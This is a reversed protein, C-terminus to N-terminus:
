TEWCGRGDYKTKRMMRCRDKKVTRHKRVKKGCERNEESTWKLLFSNEDTKSYKEQIHTGDSVNATLFCFKPAIWGATIHGDTTM